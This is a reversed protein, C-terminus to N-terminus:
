AKGLYAAIVRDDRLVADPDGDALQEGYNLVFIRDALDGVTQMDHEVWIMAISYRLNSSLSHAKTVFLNHRAVALITPRFGLTTTM